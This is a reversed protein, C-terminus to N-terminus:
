FFALARHVVIAWFGVVSGFVFMWFAIFKLEDASLNKFM